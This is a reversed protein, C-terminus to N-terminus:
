SADPMVELHWQEIRAQLDAGDREEALKRHLLAMWIPLPPLLLVLSVATAAVALADRAVPALTIDLLSLLAQGGGLLTGLYAIALTGSIAGAGVFMLMNRGFRFTLLDVSRSLSASFSARELAFAQVAYAQSSLMAGGLLISALWILGFIVGFTVGVGGLTGSGGGLVGLVGAGLTSAYMIPCVVSTFVISLLTSSVATFLLNYCGMGFARLPSISLAARIRIPEGSLAMVAARSMGVYVLLWAPFVLLPMVLALLASWDGGLQTTVLTTVLLVVIATPVLVAAGVMAFGPLHRRYLRLGDDLLALTWPLAPMPKM